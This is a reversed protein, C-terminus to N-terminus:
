IVLKPANLQSQQTQPLSRPNVNPRDREPIGHYEMITSIVPGECITCPCFYVNVVSCVILKKIVLVRTLRDDKRIIIISM